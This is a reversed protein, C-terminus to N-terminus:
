DTLFGMAPPFAQTRVSLFKADTRSEKPLPGVGHDEISDSAILWKWAKGVWTRSTTSAPADAKRPPATALHKDEPDDWAAPKLSELDAERGAHDLAPMHALAYPSHPPSDARTSSSSSSDALLAAATLTRGPASPRQPQPQQYSSAGM